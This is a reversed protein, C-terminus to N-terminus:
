PMSTCLLYKLCVRKVRWGAYSLRYLMLSKIQPDLTRTGVHAIVNKYWDQKIMKTYNAYTYSRLVFKIDPSGATTWSFLQSMHNRSKLYLWACNISKFKLRHTPFPSYVCKNNTWGITLSYFNGFDRYCAYNTDLTTYLAPKFPYIKMM